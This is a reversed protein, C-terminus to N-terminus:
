QIERKPQAWGININVTKDLQDVKAKTETDHIKTATDLITKCMMAIAMPRDNDIASKLGTKLSNFADEVLGHELHYKAVDIYTKSSIPIEKYGSV